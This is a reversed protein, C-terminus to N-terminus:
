KKLSPHQRKIFSQKKWLIMICTVACFTMFELTQEAADLKGDNNFDFFNRYM